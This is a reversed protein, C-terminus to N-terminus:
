GADPLVILRSLVPGVLARHMMWRRPALKPLRSSRKHARDSSQTPPTKPRGVAIESVEQAKKPWEPRVSM